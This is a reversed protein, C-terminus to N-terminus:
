SGCDNIATAMQCVYARNPDGSFYRHFIDPLRITSAMLKYTLRASKTLDTSLRLLKMPNDSHAVVKLNCLSNQGTKVTFMNIVCDAM